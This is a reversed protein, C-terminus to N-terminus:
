VFDKKYSLLRSLYGPQALMDDDSLLLYEADPRGDPSEIQGYLAMAVLQNRAWHIVSSGRQFPLLRVSHKGKTCEWPAHTGCFCQTERIMLHMNSLAEPHM